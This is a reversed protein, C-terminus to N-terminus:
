ADASVEFVRRIGLLHLARLADPGPDQRGTILGNLYSQSLGIQRALQHQGGAAKARMRLERRLQDLTLTKLM